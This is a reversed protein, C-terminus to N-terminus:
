SQSQVLPANTAIAKSLAVCAKSCHHAAEAARQCSEPISGRPLTAHLTGAMLGCADVLAKLVPYGWDVRRDLIRATAEALDVCDRCRELWGRPPLPGLSPNSVRLAEACAGSAAMCAARCASREGELQVM